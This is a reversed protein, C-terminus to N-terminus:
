TVQDRRVRLALGLAAQNYSESTWRRKVLVTIMLVSLSTLFLAITPPEDVSSVKLENIVPTFSSSIDAQIISPDFQADCVLSSVQSAPIGGSELDSQLSTPLSQGCQSAFLSGIQEAANPFDSLDLLPLVGSLASLDASLKKSCNTASSRFSGFASAQKAASSMDGASFAGQYRQAATLEADWISDCAEFGGIAAVFVSYNPLTKLADPLVVNFNSPSAVVTFKPDPPDSRIESLIDSGEAALDGLLDFVLSAPNKLTEESNRISDYITKLEGAFDVEKGVEDTAFFDAAQQAVFVLTNAAARKPGDAVVSAGDLVTSLHRMQTSLLGAVIKQPQTFLLGGPTASVEKWTGFQDSYGWLVTNDDSVGSNSVDGGVGYGTGIDIIAGGFPDSMTGPARTYLSASTIIGDNFYVHDLVSFPTCASCPYSTSAGTGSAEFSFSKIGTGAYLAGTYGEPVSFTVSGMVSGTVCELGELCNEAMLDFPQGTYDYTVDAFAIQPSAILLGGLLSSTIALRTRSWLVAIDYTRM